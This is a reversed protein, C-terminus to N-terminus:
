FDNLIQNFEDQRKKYITLYKMKEQQILQTIQTRIINMEISYQNVLNNNEIKQKGDSEISQINNSKDIISKDSIDIYISFMICVISLKDHIYNLKLKLLEMFFKQELITITNSDIIEIQEILIDIKSYLHLKFDFEIISFLSIIKETQDEIVLLFEIIKEAESKPYIFKM